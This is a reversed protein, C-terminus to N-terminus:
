IVVRDSGIVRAINNRSGEANRDIHEHSTLNLLQDMYLIHMSRAVQYMRPHWRNPIM